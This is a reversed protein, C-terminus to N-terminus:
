SHRSRIGFGRKLALAPREILCWSCVACLFAVPLSTVLLLHPDRIAAGFILLMQAPMHYLYVGYSLDYRAGFAALPRICFRPSLIPATLLRVVPRERYSHAMTGVFFLTGFRLMHQPDTYEVPPVIFGIAEAIWGLCLAGTVAYLASRYPLWALAALLLYCVFEFVLTWMPADLILEGRKPVGFTVLALLHATMPRHPGSPFALICLVYAAAYGPWIRLFRKRLYRGIHPDSEWSQAVLYGSLLFFGAVGVKAWAVGGAKNLVAFCHYYLVFLAFVLRLLAVNNQRDPM